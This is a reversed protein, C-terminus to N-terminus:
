SGIAGHEHPKLLEYYTKITPTSVGLEAGKHVFVGILDELELPRGAALDKQMSMQHEPASKVAGDFLDLSHEIFDSPINIGEVQAVAAAEHCIAIYRERFAPFAGATGFDIRSTIIPACAAYVAAKTWLPSRIDDTTEVNWKAETFLKRLQNVRDSVPGDLEGMANPIDTSYGVVHDLGIIAGIRDAATVGNQLPVVVTDSGILPKMQEAAAELQYTKVAFVVAEVSGVSEPQDTVNVQSLTVPPLGFQGTSQLGNQKLDELRAGRAIFVVEHGADVLLAGYRSGIDGTGMVAFKMGM